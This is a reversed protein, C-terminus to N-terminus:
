ERAILNDVHINSLNSTECFIVKEREYSFQFFAYNVRKKKDNEKKIM